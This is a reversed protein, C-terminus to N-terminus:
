TGVCVHLSSVSVCRWSQDLWPECKCRSCLYARHFVPAGQPDAGTSSGPSGWERGHSTAQSGWERAKHGALIGVGEGTIIGPQAGWERVKHHQGHLVFHLTILYYSGSPPEMHFLFRHILYEMLTWGLAGLVLLGPFVAKPM